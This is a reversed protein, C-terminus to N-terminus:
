LALVALVLGIGSLAKANASSYIANTSAAPAATTGAAVPSQVTYTAALPAETTAAAPAAYIPQAAPQVAAPQVAAPAAYTPQAAPQVAAPAAYTPQAAPQVAAPAAYTPQAAPQVAAPQVAAPQAAPQVPPAYTPKPAVTTTVGNNGPPRKTGINAFAGISGAGNQEKPGSKFDGALAQALPQAPVIATLPLQPVQQGKAPPAQSPAPTDKTQKSKPVTSPKGNKGKFSGFPDVPTEGPTSKLMPTYPTLGAAQFQPLFDNFIKRYGVNTVYTNTFQRNCNPNNVVGYLAGEFCTKPQGKPTAADLAKQAAKNKQIAVKEAAKIANQVKDRMAKTKQADINGLPVLGGNGVYSQLQISALLEDRIFAKQQGRYGSHTSDVHSTDFSDWYHLADQFQASAIDTNKPVAGANLQRRVLQTVNAPAPAAAAAGTLVFDIGIAYTRPEVSHGYVQIVCNDSEKDCKGAPFDAPITFTFKQDQYGGGCNFPRKIPVVKTLNDTFINVECDSDHPNNWRLPLDIPVGRQLTRVVGKANQRFPLMDQAPEEEEKRKNAENDINSRLFQDNDNKKQNILEQYNFTSPIRFVTGEPE